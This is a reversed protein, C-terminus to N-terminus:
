RTVKGRSIKVYRTAYDLMGTDHTVMIVTTGNENLKKLLNMIEEANKEDLSGTPEDALILLPNNALARAIAVRQQEGSSMNVPLHNCRNSVGVLDLLQSARETRDKKNIGKYIMPVEVNEIATMNNILNFTQFVFGINENRIKSKQTGTIKTSESGDFIYIGSTIDDIFSIINLLTTKGCGSKGLIVLFDGQNVELNIDNLIDIMGFRTKYIKCVNVMTIINKMKDEM